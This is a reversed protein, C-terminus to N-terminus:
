DKQLGSDRQKALPPGHWPHHYSRSPKDIIPIDAPTDAALHLCPGFFRFLSLDFSKTVSTKGADRQM